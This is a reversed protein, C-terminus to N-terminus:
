QKMHLTQQNFLYYERLNKSYVNHLWSPGLKWSFELLDGQGGAVGGRMRVRGGSHLPPRGGVCCKTAQVGGFLGGRGQNGRDQSKRGREGQTSPDRPAIAVSSSVAPM